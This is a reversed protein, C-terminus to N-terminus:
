TDLRCLWVTDCLNSILRVETKYSMFLILFINVNDEKENEIKQTFSIKKTKNQGKKGKM